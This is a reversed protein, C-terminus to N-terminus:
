ENPSPERSYVRGFNVEGEALICGGTVVKSKREIDRKRATQSNIAHWGVAADRGGGLGVRVLVGGGGSAVSVAVAAGVGVLVAVAMGVWVGTGDGVAVVGGVVIGVAM